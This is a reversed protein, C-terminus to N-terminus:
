NLLMDVDKLQVAKKKKLTKAVPATKAMPATEAAAAAPVDLLAKHQEHLRYHEKRLAELKDDALM